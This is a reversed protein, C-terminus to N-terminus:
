RGLTDLPPGVGGGSALGSVRGNGLPGDVQGLHEGARAWREDVHGRDQELKVPVWAGGKSARRGPVGGGGETALFGGGPPAVGALAGGGILLGITTLRM